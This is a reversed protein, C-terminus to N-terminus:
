DGKNSPCDVWVTVQGSQGSATVTITALGIFPEVDPRVNHIQTSLVGSADVTFDDSWVLGGQAASAEYQADPIGETVTVKVTEGHDECTVKEAALHGVPTDATDALAIGSVAAAAGLSVVAVLGATALSRKVRM